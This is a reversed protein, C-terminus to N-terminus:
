LLVVLTVIVAGIILLPVSWIALTLRIGAWTIRRRGSMFAERASSQARRGGGELGGRELGGGWGGGSRGTEAGTAPVFRVAATAVGGAPLWLLALFWFGRRKIFERTEM